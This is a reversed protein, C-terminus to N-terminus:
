IWQAQRQIGFDTDSNAQGSLDTEAARAELEGVSPHVQNKYIVTVRSSGIEEGVPAKLGSGIFALTVLTAATLSIALAHHTSNGLGTLRALPDSTKQFMRLQKPSCSGADRQM